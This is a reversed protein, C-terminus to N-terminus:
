IHSRNTLATRISRGRKVEEQSPPLGHPLGPNSWLLLLPPLTQTQQFYGHFPALGAEGCGEPNAAHGM